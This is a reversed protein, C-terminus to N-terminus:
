VTGIKFNRLYDRYLMSTLLNNPLDARMEAYAEESDTVFWVRKVNPNSRLANRFKQFRSEKFLIGYTSTPPISFDVKKSMTEREGIGGAALWLAPLIREFQGGLEIEDPDLYDLRFFEINEDFGSAFPRGQPRGLADLHNGPIPKGDPRLGTAVAECRPRAVQEFIGHKEFESDGRFVKKESLKQAVDKSVENNTVLITRRRGGDAANLLCAAHFTTASGAFFDVILADPRNRVVASLCDRVAYVSKPFQFLGPEGLLRRLLETGHTGADYAKDVWVTKLKRTRRAPVRYNITWSDKKPNYKGLFVDGADILAQTPKSVFSWVRHHGEGDIPWIPRLGDVKTFDPKADAPISPGARVVKRSKEDIFIPYFMNPREHRYSHSGRRRLLRYEWIVTAGETGHEQLEVEPEENQEDEDGDEEDEDEEEASEKFWRESDLTTVIANEVSIERPKEPIVDVGLDPVVFFAYEDVRAFNAKGTGKPNILITIMYRLYEPYLKELLMGLHHIEHEDITVILVGDKKLLRKALRLRKEMFSLWKSHRWADSAEIYHNSYKWDRAGTNYPPDLYICDVQGEFLYVLLQLAHFNEGNILAHFPRKESKKIAGIPTLVTYMPEGFRKVVLLDRTLASTHETGGVSALAARRGRDSVKTVRWVSEGDIDERRHVLSGERIPLGSLATTEPIHEEYVLGFRQRRKFEALAAQLEKRVREDKVQLLLDDIRAM